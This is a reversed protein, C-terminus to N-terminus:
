KERNKAEQWLLEWSQSDMQDVLWNKERMIAELIGFRNLFKTNGGAAMVEPEFGLHRCVQALSFYVDGLEESLATELRDSANELESLDGGSRTSEAHHTKLLSIAEKLEDLESDLQEIVQNVEAWDFGIKHAIKGIKYAHTTAPGAFRSVSSFIAQSFAASTEKQDSSRDDKNQKEQAKIEAWQEHLKEITPAQDTESHDWKEFVHPHRRIMKAKLSEIIQVISSTKEDTLLQANLVVQLLVDGLEGTLEVPDNATMAEVAEYAEELMFQRLSQHTQQLDWPCGKTPHRLMAITKVLEAFAKGASEARQKLENEWAPNKSAKSLILVM